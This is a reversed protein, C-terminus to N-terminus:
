QNLPKEIAERIRQKLETFDSSKILYALAGWTMFNQKYQPDTTNFIVQTRRNKGLMVNLTEIGDMVPIRIEMVVVEPKQEMFKSLAEQGDKALIVEYGEESLEEQYLYLLSSDNDVCLIKGHSAGKGKQGPHHCSSPLM